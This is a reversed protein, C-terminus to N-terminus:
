SRRRSMPCTTRVSVARSCCIRRSFADELMQELWANHAKIATAGAAHAAEGIAKADELNGYYNPQQVYVCAADAGLAARLADM